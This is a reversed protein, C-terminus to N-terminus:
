YKICYLVSTNTPRTTMINGGSNVTHSDSNDAEFWSRGQKQQGNAWTAPSSDANIGGGYPIPRPVFIRTKNVDISFEPLITADQHNGVDAGNGQYIHSNSGAGRLFEGRLDPVAFTTEGDGGFYNYSGFQTKIYQALQKYEGIQYTTGDCNIYGAPAEKGMQAIITGTPTVSEGWVAKQVEDRVKTDILRNLDEMSITINSDGNTAVLISSYLEELRRKEDAEADIYNKGAQKAMNIIGNEGIVFGLVIGALILLVIITVILSILTIGAKRKM